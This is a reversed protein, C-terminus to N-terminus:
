LLKEIMEELGGSLPNVGTVAINGDRDILFTRPISNVGYLKAAPSSWHQLDSVHGDWMLNDKEIAQIWRRRAQETEQAIKAQDGGLQPLKRPHIGDLSVSFIDFGQDKYKQYVEVVHPNARRCPGCWSAWFDLMVVKGKLDSLKRVKGDPGELAIDPALQGVAIPGSRRPQQQSKMQNETQIILQNLATADTSGPHAAALKTSIEKFLPLQGAIQGQTVTLLLNLAYYPNSSGKVAQLAAPADMTQNILGQMSAAFEVASPSGSVEAEYRDLTSINGNITLTAPSDDIPFGIRKAGVSLQYLGPELSKELPISFSGDAGAETKGLTKRSNPLETRELIVQLGGANQIVGEVSPNQSATDCGTTFMTAIGAIAVFVIFFRM